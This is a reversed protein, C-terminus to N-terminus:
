TKLLYCKIEVIWELFSAIKGDPFRIYKNAREIKPEIFLVVPYKATFCMGMPSIVIIAAELVKKAHIYALINRQQVPNKM